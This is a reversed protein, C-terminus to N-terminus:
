WVATGPSKFGVANKLQLIKGNGQCPGNEIHMAFRFNANTRPCM